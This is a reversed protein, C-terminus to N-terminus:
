SEQVTDQQVQQSKGEDFQFDDASPTIDEFNHSLEYGYNDEIEQPCGSQYAIAIVAISAFLSM